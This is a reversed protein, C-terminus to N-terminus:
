ELILEVVKDMNDFVEKVMAQFRLPFTKKDDETAKEGIASMLIGMPNVIKQPTYNLSVMKRTDLRTFRVDDEIDANFFLLDRRYFKGTPIGGFGFDDTAGTITSLVSGVVGANEDRTDKQLEVKIDGRRPIEDGYLAKLGKLAVLYAGAVTACSHGATKVIDMYTFEIIGDDIAGLFESLEDYVRISEIDNFFEPMNQKINEKKM